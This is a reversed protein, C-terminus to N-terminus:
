MESQLSLVCFKVINRYVLMAEWTTSTTFFEGALAPSRLSRPEIGPNPLGGQFLDHCDVGINKGPSDQHVSSGPPSCDMSNCLTPCSQAVKM